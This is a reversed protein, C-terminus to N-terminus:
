FPIEDDIPWDEPGNVAYGMSRKYENLEKETAFYKGDCQYPLHDPNDQRQSQHESSEGVFSLKDVQIYEYTKGNYETWYPEGVAIIYKGRRMYPMLKATRDTGSMTCSYYHVQKNKMNWAISFTMFEKGSKGAKMVADNTLRGDIMYTAM